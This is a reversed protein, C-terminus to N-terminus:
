PPPPLPQTLGWTEPPTIPPPPPLPPAPDIGLFLPWMLPSTNAQEDEIPDAALLRRASPMIDGSRQFRLADLLGFLTQAPMDPAFDLILGELGPNKLVHSEVAAYIDPLYVSVEM